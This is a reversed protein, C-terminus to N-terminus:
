QEFGQKTAGVPERDKYSWLELPTAQNAPRVTWISQRRLLVGRFNVTIDLRYGPGVEFTTTMDDINEGTLAVLRGADLLGERRLVLLGELAAGGYKVALVTPPATGPNLVGIPYLTAVDDLRDTINTSLGTLLPLEKLSQLATRTPTSLSQQLRRSAEEAQMSDVGLAVLLGAFDRTPSTAVPMPILGSMDQVRFTADDVAFPEGRFNWVAAYPNDEIMVAPDAGPTQSKPRTLLSYLLAVERSHLRLDAEARDALRQAQTVQQRATLGIQLILLSLVGTIALVLVLAVGRERNV